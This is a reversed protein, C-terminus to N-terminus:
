TALKTTDTQQKIMQILKEIKGSAERGKIGANLPPTGVM